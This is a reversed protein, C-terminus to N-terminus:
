TQVAAGCPWVPASSCSVLGIILRAEAPVASSCPGQGLTARQLPLPGRAALQVTHQQWHPLGM